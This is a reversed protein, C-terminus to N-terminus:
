TYSHSYAHRYAYAKLSKHRLTLLYIFVLGMLMNQIPLVCVYETEHVSICFFNSFSPPIKPVRVKWSCWEIWCTGSARSCGAYCTPPFDVPVIVDLFLLLSPPKSPARWFAPSRNDNHLLRFSLQSRSELDFLHKHYTPPKSAQSQCSFNTYCCSRSTEFLVLVHVAACNERKILPLMGKSWRAGAFWNKGASRRRWDQLQVLYSSYSFSRSPNVQWVYFVYM